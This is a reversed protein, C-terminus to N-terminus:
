PAKLEVGRLIQRDEGAPRGRLGPCKNMFTLDAPSTARYGPDMAVFKVRIHQDLTLNRFPPAMLFAGKAKAAAATRPKVATAAGEGACAQRPPPQPQPPARAPPNIAPATIPPM